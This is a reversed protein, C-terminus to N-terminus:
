PPLSASVESIKKTKEDVKFRTLGVHVAGPEHACAFYRLTAEDAHCPTNPTVGGGECSPEKPQTIAFQRRAHADLFPKPLRGGATMTAFAYYSPRTGNTIAVVDKPSRDLEQALAKALQEKTCLPEDQLTTETGSLLGNPGCRFFPQCLDDGLLSELQSCPVKEFGSAITATAVFFGAADILAENGQADASTSKKVRDLLVCAFGLDAAHEKPEAAMTRLLAAVARPERIEHSTLERARAGFNRVPKGDPARLPLITVARRMGRTPGGTELTRALANKVQEKSPEPLSAYAVDWAPVDVDAAGLLLKVMADDGGKKAELFVRQATEKPAKELITGYADDLSPASRMDVPVKTTGGVFWADGVKYVLRAEGNAMPVALRKKADDETISPHAAPALDGAPMPVRVGFADLEAMGADTWTVTAASARQGAEGSKAPDKSPCGLLVLAVVLWVRPRIM